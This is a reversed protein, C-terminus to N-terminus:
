NVMVNKVHWIKEIIEFFIKFIIINKNEDDRRGEKNRDYFTSESTLMELAQACQVM